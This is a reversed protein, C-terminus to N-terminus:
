CWRKARELQTDLINEPVILDGKGHVLSLHPKNAGHYDSGGSIVLDLRDALSALVRRRSNSYESYLAELGDLNAQALTTAVRAVNALTGLNRFPHALVAIGGAEHIASIGDIIDLHESVIHGPKGPSLLEDFAEQITRFHGNEVLAAAFHARTLNRKPWRAKLADLNIRYGLGSLLEALQMNRQDRDAGAGALTAALTPTAKIHLGLLHCTIPGDSTTYSTTLEVGNILRIDRGRAAEAAEKLGAITDHDTLAVAKAGLQRATKIVETPSDTGDSHSSHTHLDILPHATM